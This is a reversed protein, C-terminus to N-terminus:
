LIAFKSPRIARTVPADCPIPRAHASSSARAASRHRERGPILRFQGLRNRLNFSGAALSRGERQIHGAFLGDLGAGPSNQFSETFDLDQDVIGPDGAVPQHQAHLARIPVVHQRVFRVPAKRSVCARSLAISFFRQPRIM